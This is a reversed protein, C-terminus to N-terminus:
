SAMLYFSQVDRSYSYSQAIASAGESGSVRLVHSEERSICMKIGQSLRMHVRCFKLSAQLVQNRLCMRPQFSSSKITNGARSTTTSSIEMSLQKSLDQWGCQSIVIELDAQSHM